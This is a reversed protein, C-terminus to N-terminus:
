FYQVWGEPEPKAKRRPRRAAPTAARRREFDELDRQDVRYRPRGGLKAVVNVAKLEGERIWLLVKDPSVRLRQAVQPPTLKIPRTPTKTM